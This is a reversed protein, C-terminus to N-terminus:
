FWGKVGKRRMQQKNAVQRMLAEAMIREEEDAADWGSIKKATNKTRLALTEIPSSRVPSTSTSGNPSTSPRRRLSPATLALVPSGDAPPTLAGSGSASAFSPSLHFSNSHPLAPKSTTHVSLVRRKHSVVPIWELPLIKCQVHPVEKKPSPFRPNLDLQDFALDIATSEEDSYINNTNSLFTEVLTERSANGPTSPRSISNGELRMLDFSASRSSFGSESHMDDLRAAILSHVGTDQHTKKELPRWYVKICDQEVEVKEFVQNSPPLTCASLPILLQKRL